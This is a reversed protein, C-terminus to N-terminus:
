TLCCAVAHAPTRRRHRNRPRGRGSRRPPGDVRSWAQSASISAAVWCVRARCFRPGLGCPTKSGSCIPRNLLTDSYNGLGCASGSPRAPGLPGSRPQPPRDAASRVPAAAARWPAGLIALPLARPEPGPPPGPATTPHAYGLRPTVAGNDAIDSKPGAVGAARSSTWAAGPADTPHACGSRGTYAGKDVIGALSPARVRRGPRDELAPSCGVVPVLDVASDRGRAIALSRLSAPSLGIRGEDGHRRDGHGLRRCAGPWGTQWQIRQPLRFLPQSATFM